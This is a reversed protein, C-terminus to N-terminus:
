ELWTRGRYLTPQLSGGVNTYSVAGGASIQEYGPVPEWGGLGDLQKHQLAYYRTVTAYGTGSATITPFSVIVDGNTHLLSVAFFDNSNDPDTGGIYEDINPVGDNDGDIHAAQDTNGLKEIEWNDPMVDGDGDEAGPLEALTVSLSADMMLDSSVDAINFVQVAFVNSQGLAPIQGGTLTATWNSSGGGVYGPANSHCPVFTGPASGMHVRAVEEGNVWAIFGDDFDIDLGLQEIVAPDALTFTCRLFVSVYTNQMDGLETGTPWGGSAYGFPAPGNSWGSDDFLFERWDAAPDSAEATGKRWRWTAGKSVKEQAGATTTADAVATNSSEGGGNYARVRYYYKTEAPLGTDSHTSTNAGKSVFPITWTTVGSQRRDIRFGTEDGSQDEWALDIQTASVATATLNTPAAPTPTAAQTTADAVATNSSEGGGNYARVRYYYRTEAPLGTDSHTSTNAGVSLLPVTWTTVGTKRRDIRFGTEDGSQDEWALDIQTASVATATLNTPAAPAPTAALTTADAVATNSSEGGGNYARVRYYYRTEALLGTDSHTSTNAGVSVLPVTWTTVGTKRRDIRFGTEDGSQDAWALDIQTSSVATATLNTPAAPPPTGGLTTADAIPTNVSEGNGNYARVRYYYRTDALLGTDSHTSTNAGKSVLPVTWTTTGTKRRDIRFGTEDGSQDEWALDIQAASVATATLNTPAAPVAGGSTTTADDINSYNSNGNENYAKVKYYYKTSATLGTDTHTTDNPGTTAIRVWQDPSVVGSERQDLKFGDEDSSNDHWTVGISTGSLPSAVLSSPPAPGATAQHFSIRDILMTQGSKKVIRVTNNGALLTVTKAERGLFTWSGNVNLTMDGVDSGNVWITLKCSSAVTCYYPVMIQAGAGVDVNNWEIWEGDNYMKVHGAGTFERSRSHVTTDPHRDTCARADYNQLLPGYTFPVKTVGVDDWYVIGNTLPFWTHFAINCKAAHAPAINDIRVYRYDYTGDRTGFAVSGNWTPYCPDGNSDFWSIVGEPCGGDPVTTSKVNEGKTWFDFKYEQGGEIGTINYQRAYHHGESEEGHFDCLQRLSYSGSRAKSANNLITSGSDLLNWSSSGSEFGPNSVLNQAAANSGLVAGILLVVARFTYTTKMMINAKTEVATSADVM